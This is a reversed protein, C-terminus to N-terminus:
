QVGRKVLNRFEDLAARDGGFDIQKMTPRNWLWTDLSAATGRVDFCGDDTPESVQLVEEDHATGSEPSTGVFRGLSIGWSRGVDTATVTGVLDSPMFAGWEPSEAYMVRLAEDVGDAALHADIATSRGGVVEADLRHILAEHAQRRLIFGATRDDSWTWMPTDAALDALEAGLNSSAQACLRLLELHDSPRTPISAKAGEPSSLRDRVIAAWFWQVETLHWVLDAANWDPCTPVSATPDVGSLCEHFRLSETRIAALFDVAAPM